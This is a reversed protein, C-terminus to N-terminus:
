PLEKLARLDKLTILNKSFFSRLLAKVVLNKNPIKGPFVIFTRKFKEIDEKELNVLVSAFEPLFAGKAEVLCYIQKNVRSKTIVFDVRWKKGNPYCTCKPIIGISVQREIRREGYMRVLELYVKFEHTSDFRWIHNPLRLKGEIRYREVLVPNVVTRNRSDWYVAKAKYKPTRAM